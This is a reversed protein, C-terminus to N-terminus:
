KKSNKILIILLVILEIVLFFMLFLLLPYATLGKNLTDVNIVNGIILNHYRYGNDRLNLYIWAGIGYNTNEIRYFLAGYYEGSENGRICVKYRGPGTEQPYTAELSITNSHILYNPIIKTNNESWLITGNFILEKSGILSFNRCIDEGISGEFNMTDPSIGFEIASSFDALFIVFSLIILSAIYFVSSEKM